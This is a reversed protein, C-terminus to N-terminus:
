AVNEVCHVCRVLRSELKVVAVVPCVVVPLLVCNSRRDIPM